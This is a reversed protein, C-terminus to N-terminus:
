EPQRAMQFTSMGYMLPKNKAPSFGRETTNNLPPMSEQTQAANAARSVSAAARWM